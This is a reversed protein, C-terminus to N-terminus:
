PIVTEEKEGSGHSSISTNNNEDNRKSIEAIQNKM